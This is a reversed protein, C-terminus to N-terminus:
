MAGIKLRVCDSSEPTFEHPLMQAAGRDKGPFGTCFKRQPHKKKTKKKRGEVSRKFHSRSLTFPFKISLM